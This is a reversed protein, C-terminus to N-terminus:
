ARRCLPVVVTEGGALGISVRRSDAEVATVELPEDGLSLAAALTRNGARSRLEATHVPKRERDGPYTWGLRPEDSGNLLKLETDEGLDTLTAAVGEGSLAIRGRGVESAELEPGFHFHLSYGHEQESRVEDLVILAQAPRYLLVRRHEVGQGALLPNRAVIAHWGDGEGTAELGSGYPEAGRWDFDQGDVTLVNHAAASRAYLRDPEDEYYGWRGADGLIVLGGEVLVFGTDDAHKHAAGHHAASVALYSDGERVFAQGAEFLANMGRLSAATDRAWRPAQRDDTDGLQAMGGGPSVQWAATRRMRDLLPGLEPLEVVNDALRAVLDLIALQYAPSHELHTGDEFSVTAELTAKMRVLALERWAPAAPLGPLLRSLLYLGEDQFLGHNNDVAYNGGDALFDGHLRATELLLERDDDDLMDEDRCARLVYGVYPARLGVAMDYWAFESQEGKSRLHTRSWDLVADRAVALMEVDGAAAHRALAEKLWTLTHLEYRWTRSGHPDQLWDIPPRLNEAQGYVYFGGGLIATRTPRKVRWPGIVQPQPLELRHLGENGGPLRLEDVTGAELGSASM